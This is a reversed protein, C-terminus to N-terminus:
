SVVKRRKITVKTTVDEKTLNQIQEEKNGLYINPEEYLKITKLPIELTSITCPDNLNLKRTIEIKKGTKEIIDTFQQFNEKLYSKFVSNSLATNVLSINKNTFTSHWFSQSLEPTLNPIFWNLMLNNNSDRYSIKAMKIMIEKIFSDDLSINKNFVQIVVKLTEENKNLCLPITYNEFDQKNLEQPFKQALKLFIENKEYMAAYSFLTMNGEKIDKFEIVKLVGDLLEFFATMNYSFKQRLLYFLESYVPKPNSLLEDDEQEDSPHIFKEKNNNKLHGNFKKKKFHKKKPENNITNNGKASNNTKVENPLNDIKQNEEM